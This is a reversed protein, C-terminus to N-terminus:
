ELNEVGKVTILWGYVLDSVANMEETKGYCGVFSQFVWFFMTFLIHRATVQLVYNSAFIKYSSKWLQINFIWLVSVIVKRM